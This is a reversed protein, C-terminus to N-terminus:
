SCGSLLVGVYNRGRSRSSNRGQSGEIITQPLSTYALCVGEGLSSQATTTIVAISPLSPYHEVKVQTHSWVWAKM